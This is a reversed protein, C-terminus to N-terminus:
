LLSLLITFDRLLSLVMGWLGGFIYIVFFHIRYIFM